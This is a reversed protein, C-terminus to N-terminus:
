PRLRPCTSRRSRLSRSTCTRRSRRHHRRRPPPQRRHRHSPTFPRRRSQLPARPSIRPGACSPRSTRRAYVGAHALHSCLQLTSHLAWGRFSRLPSSSPTPPPCGLLFLSVSRVLMPFSPQVVQNFYLDLLASRTASDPILVEVARPGTSTADREPDAAANAKGKDVSPHVAGTSDGIHNEATPAMPHHYYVHAPQQQQQQQQQHHHRHHLHHHHDPVAANALAHLAFPISPLANSSARDSLVATSSSPAGTPNPDLFTMAADDGTPGAGAAPYSAPDPPLTPMSTSPAAPLDLKLKAAQRASVLPPLIADLIEPIRTSEYSHQFPDGSSAPSPGAAAAAAAACHSAFAAVYGELNPVTTALYGLLRELTACKEALSRAKGAQPGRKRPPKSYTCEAPAGAETCIVCPADLSTADPDAKCKIRRRRCSRPHAVTRALSDTNLLPASRLLFRRRSYKDCARTVRRKKAPNEGDQDSDM